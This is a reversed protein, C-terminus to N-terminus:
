RKLPNIEEPVRAPSGHELVVGTTPEVLYTCSACRLLARGVLYEEDSFVHRPDFEKQLHTNCRPCRFQRYFADMKKSEPSLEDKYGEVLKWALQQDMEKFVGM